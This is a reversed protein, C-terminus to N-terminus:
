SDGEYYGTLQVQEEQFRQLMSSPVMPSGIHEFMKSTYDRKVLESLRHRVWDYFRKFAFIELQGRVFEVLYLEQSLGDNTSAISSGRDRPHVNYFGGSMRPELGSFFGGPSRGAGHEGMDPFYGLASHATSSSSLGASYGQSLRAPSAAAIMTQPMRYLQLACLPPGHINDNGWVELRFTEWHLAIKGILGIPTQTRLTRYQELVCEVKSLVEAAPVATIFRTSRKVTDNFSPPFNTSM